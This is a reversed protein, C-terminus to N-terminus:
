ARRAGFIAKDLRVMTAGKEVAVYYDNSMGMSLEKLSITSIPQPSLALASERLRRFYSCAQEPDNTPPPIEVLGKVVVHPM